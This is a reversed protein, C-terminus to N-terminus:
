AGVAARPLTWTRSNIADTMPGDDRPHGVSEKGHRGWITDDLDIPAHPFWAAPHPICVQPIDRENAWMSLWIDTMNKVPFDEATPRVTDSHFACIGTNTLNIPMPQARAESYHYRCQRADGYYHTCPSQVVAGGVAVIAKRSYYDVWGKMTRVYNDPYFLDDDIIIWYAPTPTGFLGLFKGTDGYGPDHHAQITKPHFRLFQPLPEDGDVYVFIRDVNPLIHELVLQLHDWRKPLTALGAYVPDAM